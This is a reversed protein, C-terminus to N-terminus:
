FSKELTQHAKIASENKLTNCEFCILLGSWPSYHPMSSERIMKSLNESYKSLPGEPTCAEMPNTLELTLYGLVTKM